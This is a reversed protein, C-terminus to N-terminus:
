GRILSKRNRFKENLHRTSQTKKKNNKKTNTYRIYLVNYKIYM